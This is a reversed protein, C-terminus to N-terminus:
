IIFILFQQDNKHYSVHTTTGGQSPTTTSLPSDTTTTTTTPGEIVPPSVPFNLSRKLICKM